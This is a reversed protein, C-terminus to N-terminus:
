ARGQMIERAFARARELRSADPQGQSNDARAWAQLKPDPSKLMFGKVMESLQWQCHFLGVVNAGAASDRCVTLWKELEPGGEEPSAHTVFLAVDKGNVKTELFEKVAPNPGFREIPTGIFVLDYGEVGSVEALPKIEKDGPLEQFIADAVKKTNGTQTAYTVLVKM